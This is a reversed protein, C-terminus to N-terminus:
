SDAACRQVAGGTRRACAFAAATAAAAAAFASSGTNPLTPEDCASPPAMRRTGQADSPAGCAAHNPYTPVRADNGKDGATGFLGCSETIPASETSYASAHEEGGHLAGRGAPLRQPM